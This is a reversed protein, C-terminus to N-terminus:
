LNTLTESGAEIYYFEKYARSKTGSISYEISLAPDDSSGSPEGLQTFKPELILYNKYYTDTGVVKKVRMFIIFPTSNTSGLNYLAYDEVSAHTDALKSLGFEAITEEMQADATLSIELDANLTSIVQSNQAGAENAGFFLRTEAEDEGPEISIETLEGSIKTWGVIDLAIIADDVYKALTVDNGKSGPKFAVMDDIFGLYIEVDRANFNM